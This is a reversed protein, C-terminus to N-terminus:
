QVGLVLSSVAGPSITVPQGPRRLATLAAPNRYELHVPTDFVFVHYNGPTLGPVTINPGSSPHVSVPPIDATTDFDPVVYVTYSPEEGPLFEAMGQPLELALTGCDDRLTLEMPPPGVAFGLNVPDRALNTAGATFSAVCWNRDNVLTNLWMPGFGASSLDLLDPGADDAMAVGGPGEGPLEGADSAVVSVISQLSMGTSSRSGLSTREAKIRIPWSPAMGLPIRLNAVAHGAVSFETYGAFSMAKRAGRGQGPPENANVTVLLTYAGDPLSMQISRSEPDYQAPYSLRRGSPDMAIAGALFADFGTEAPSNPVFPRGNPLYATALVTQFPELVLAFNAQASAGGALRIRAAGGFDHADPYFVSRYGGRAVSGAHDSAVTSVAPESELAPQTYVVYVGHPLAAFRYAGDGNTRTTANEVWVARGGRIVQKVLVVTIGQAPDGTSLDVHGHIACTPTLRFNLEPMQAAVMVSHAPGEAQYSVEETAYPRDRFGPKLLRISQPGAPVAPFEFRGDGDTLTGADADGEIRVLVRPLPQGTAGNRVVGRLPVLSAAEPADQEQPAAPEQAM